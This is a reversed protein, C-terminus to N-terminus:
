DSGPDNDLARISSLDRFDKPWVRFENHKRSEDSGDDDGVEEDAYDAVAAIAPAGHTPTRPRKSYVDSSSYRKLAIGPPM